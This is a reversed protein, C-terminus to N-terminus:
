TRSEQHIELRLVSSGIRFCDGDAVSQEGFIRRENVWTGNTSFDELWFEGGRRRLVAHHRSIMVDGPDLQQRTLELLEDNVALNQGRKAGEVVVLRAHLTPEVPRSGGPALGLAMAIEAGDRYRDRPKKALAKLTIRELEPSAAPRLERPPRPTERIHRLVVDMAQQISDPSDTRRPFPVQGTLLEYLVIGVSYVDSAPQVEEGRAQEPSMYEPTGVPGRHTVTIGSLQKAIGFDAVKALGQKTLLINEPKIDRHVIQRQHAFALALCTQGVVRRIEEEGLPRRLQERLSGGDIFEMVIYPVGDPRHAYQEVQVIHPHGRLLAAIRDGEKEFKHMLYPDNTVKPIKIAVTHGDAAHARYVEAMGGGGIYGEIQYPGLQGLMKGPAPDTIKPAAPIQQSSAHYVFETLGIQIRDGPRLPHEVVRTGGVFTGNVSNRDCLLHGEKGPVIQAHLRSVMLEALVIDNEATRGLRLGTPPIVFSRGACSGSTATLTFSPSEPSGEATPLPTPQRRPTISIARNGASRQQPNPKVPRVSRHRGRALLLILAIVSVTLCALVIPLLLTPFEM